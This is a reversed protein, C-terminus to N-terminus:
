KGSEISIRLNTIRRILDEDVGYVQAENYISRIELIDADSIRRQKTVKNIRVYESEFNNRIDDEFLM